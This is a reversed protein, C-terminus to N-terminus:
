PLMDFPHIRPTSSQVLFYLVALTTLIAYPVLFILAYMTFVGRDFIPRPKFKPFPTDPASAVATEVSSEASAPKLLEVSSATEASDAAAVPSERPTLEMNPIPSPTERAPTQLVGQCHPCRVQGGLHEVGIAIVQQCHGCQLQVTEM